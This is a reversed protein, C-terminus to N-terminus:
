QKPRKNPFASSKKAETNPSDSAPEKSKQRQEKEQQICKTLFADNHEKALRTCGILFAVPGGEKLSPLPGQDHMGSYADDGPQAKVPEVGLSLGVRAESAESHSSDFIASSRTCTGDHGQISYTTTIGIPRRATAEAPKATSEMQM